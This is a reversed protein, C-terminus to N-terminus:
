AHFAPTRELGRKRPPRKVLNYCDPFPKFTLKAARFPVKPFEAVSSFTSNTGYLSRMTWFPVPCYQHPLRRRLQRSSRASFANAEQQPTFRTQPQPHPPKEIQRNIKHQNAATAATSPGDIETAQSSPRAPRSSRRQPPPGPTPTPTPDIKPKATSKTSVPPPQRPPHGTLKRRECSPGQPKMGAGTPSCPKPQSALQTKGIAM